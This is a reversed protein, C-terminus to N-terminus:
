QPQQDDRSEGRAVAEDTLQRDLDQEEDDRGSPLSPDIKKIQKNLSRWLFFVAILLALVFLGAIPLANDILTKLEDPDSTEALVAAPIM